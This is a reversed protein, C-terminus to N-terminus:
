LKHSGIRRLRVSSSTRLCDMNDSGRQQRAHRPLTADVILMDIIPTRSNAFTKVHVNVTPLNPSRHFFSDAAPAQPNWCFPGCVQVLCSPRRSRKIRVDEQQPEEPSLSSPALAPIKHTFSAARVRGCPPHAKYALFLWGAAMYNNSAKSASREFDM